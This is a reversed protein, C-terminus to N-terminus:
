SMGHPQWPTGHRNGRHNGHNWGHCAVAGGGAGYFGIAHCPIGHPRWTIGNTIGHGHWSFISCHPVRPPVSPTRLSGDTYLRPKLLKPLSSYTASSIYTPVKSSRIQICYCCLRSKSGISQMLTKRYVTLRVANQATRATRVRLKQTTTKM